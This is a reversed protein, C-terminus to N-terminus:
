DRERRIRKVKKAGAEETVVKQKTIKGQDGIKTGKGRTNEREEEFKM